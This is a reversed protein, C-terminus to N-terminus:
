RGTNRGSLYFTIITYVLIINRQIYQPPPPPIITTINMWARACELDYIDDIDISARKDLVFKYPNPGNHYKWEIMKERPAIFLGTTIRYLVPLEQSPIHGIGIKYNIPTNEDWLYHRFEEVTLLSDYGMKIKEKYVAIAESYIAPEILPATCLAWLIHDGAVNKCVHSVVEGFPQTKEDCYEEARKHTKVGMDTAMQLMEDSDSSVVINTIEEVAQLQKIKHRLLNSGAFSLINKNKLRRSGKRVPIIATFDNM